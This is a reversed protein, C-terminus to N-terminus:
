YDYKRPRGLRLHKQQATRIRHCNACLVVCKKIEEMIRRRNYNLMRSITYSKETPDQHDFDLCDPRNEGCEACGLLSKYKRIWILNLRQNERAREVQKKYKEKGLREFMNM